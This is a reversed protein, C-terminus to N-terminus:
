DGVYHVQGGEVVVAQPIEADRLGHRKRLHAVFAARDRFAHAHADCYYPARNVAVVGPVQHHSGGFPFTVGPTPAVLPVEVFLEARHGSCEVAFAAAALALSLAVMGVAIAGLPRSM